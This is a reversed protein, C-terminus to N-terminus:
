PLFDSMGGPVDKIPALTQEGQWVYVSYGDWVGLSEPSVAWGVTYWWRLRLQTCTTNGEQWQYRGRTAWTDGERRQYRGGMSTVILDLDWVVKEWSKHQNMIRSGIRLSMLPWSHFQYSDQRGTAIMGNFHQRTYMKLKHLFDALFKNIHVCCGGYWCDM